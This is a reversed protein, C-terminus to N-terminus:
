KRSIVFIQWKVLKKTKSLKWTEVEQRSPNLSFFGPCVPHFPFGLVWLSVPLHECLCSLCCPSPPPSTLVHSDTGSCLSLSSDEDILYGLWSQIRCSFFACTVSWHWCSDWQFQHSDLHQPGYRAPAGGRYRRFCRSVHSNLACLHRGLRPSM